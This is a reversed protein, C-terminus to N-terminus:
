VMKVSKFYRILIEKVFYYRRAYSNDIRILEFGHEQCIRNKKADRLRVADNDQHERGDLEIALIPYEGGDRKEYVVFDFRGTYFLDLGTINSQFVQSIAVEKKVTCKRNNLIVNGLAHNLNNLFAEETETSYPKIGLARSAPTRGTVQSTGNTRVYHVLEYLDDEDSDGHLREMNKTSSLVVLQERARSTAVNILEKNNKLWDYTGQYTQDTIATSFIIVDKEDGQFAHVTGCTVNELGSVALLRTIYDKQNVFPTIVGISKDKNLSAFEVVKRAEAPATNKYDSYNDTIDVYVLPNEQTSVTEVHLKSNYYKKNNFEIIKRNCRYHHSLLVEYSGADCALYTKYISNEIYDYEKSVQYNRRLIFNDKKDMVIVPNLQQPDGVLMLQKGRLVAVLGIATNCQSAEDMVVMDFSPEPNGLKHASICTTAVIPFVELLDKLHATDSLYKNFEEVQCERLSRGEEQPQEMYLIKRLGDYKEKGLKQIYQASKYYLYKLFEETDDYLLKQADELRIEGNKYLEQELRPLQEGRLQVDFPLLKTSDLMKLLTEKKEQLMLVEEYNHLLATLQRTQRIKDDKKRELTKDFINVQRTREYIERIYLIAEYVKENNGLRIIPFPVQKGRYTIKQLSDFVSDIPHNNYSCFLVSKGNFFATSITNLITNTKGTGPPGQIYALPNNIANHIALLQDLNVKQNLLALPYVKRSSRPRDLYNGFFAQVPICAEGKACSDLIANYEHELDIVPERGIAICYPMDDVGRLKTNSHTIKDKILEANQDFHDLLDYDEADLFKRISQKMGNVTFERCITTEDDPRMSKQKVDLRLRRYALVYLGKATYISLVNLALQKIRIRGCSGSKGEQQGLQSRYQFHAVIEGFQEDTLNLRVGLLANKGDRRTLCDGDLRTILSYDCEYPVTDLRNCDCLYNLVKMNAVDEFLTRYKQPNLAIDDILRRNKPQYTGELISSSLISDIYIYLEKIEHQGLHLGDVILARKHAVIDKIGIWYKTVQQGKNQYEISLWVGEHVARFIDRCVSNM